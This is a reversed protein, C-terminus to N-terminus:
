SRTSWGGFAKKLNSHRSFREFRFPALDFQPDNGLIHNAMVKGVGPGLGFGHGSLGSAIYLGPYRGVDGLAPLVDPTMDTAGTWTETIKLQALEPFYRGIRKEIKKFHRTSHRPNL